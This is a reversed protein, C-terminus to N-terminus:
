LQIVIGRHREPPRRFRHDGTRIRGLASNLVLRL